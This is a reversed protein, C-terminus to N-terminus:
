PRSQHVRGVRAGGGGLHLLLDAVLDLLGDLLQALEVPDLGGGVPPGGLDLGVDLVLVVLEGQGLHPVLQPALDAVDLALERGTGAGRHHVVVEAVHPADEDGDVAVVVGVGLQAVHGLEVLLLQQQDLVHGLDGEPTLAVLRDVDLGVAIAEGLEPETGGGDLLGQALLVHDRVRPAHLDAGLEDRDLRASLDLGDLVELFQQQAFLARVLLDVQAVHGAYPAAVHLRGARQKAVVPVAGDAEADRCRFPPLTTSIPSATPARARSSSSSIGRPTSAPMMERWDSAVVTAM